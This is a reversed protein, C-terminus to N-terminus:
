DDPVQVLTCSLPPAVRGYHSHLTHHQRVIEDVYGMCECNKGTLLRRNADDAEKRCRAGLLDVQANIHFKLKLDSDSDARTCLKEHAHWYVYLHQVYMLGVFRNRWDSPLSSDEPKVTPADNLFSNCSPRAGFLGFTKYEISQSSPWFEDCQSEKGSILFFM